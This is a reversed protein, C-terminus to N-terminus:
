INWFKKDMSRYCIAESLHYTNIDGDGELDAITRAVKLIRHYARATLNLNVFANEILEKEKDGLKCYKRIMKPTLESNFHIEEKRYREEQIKRVKMVRKRIDESTEGKSKQELEKYNIQLTEVCIDIRDLLPQSVKGLYRQVQNVSCNCRNRDPYYGCNCPNMAAVLMFNTPYRFSGNLRTITVYKDELPQRLIEITNKNFEPLEDLFLVGGSALSIEGPKANRGGGTLASITITHHPSRFPRKLILSQENSLLGFVSYVKSIELSEELTLDPMITPIRKALMTKGAGPTGMLLINHMGCVAIEVARKAAVQGNIDEFDIDWEKEQHCFMEEVNVYEPEIMIPNNLYDVVQELSKVGIVDIGSIVAGEKGNEMPLICRTFGYDQAMKVIPLVGNVKNVQGNLSLEGIILTDKISEEPIFGLTALIAVAIPLDFATGEKRLDAPSLNITIRKAPLKFGSNKLSIRVREKAEKVESGLFGVMSFEPLGNSVDAEVQVLFGNIGHLGASFTRNFM